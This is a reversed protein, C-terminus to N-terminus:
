QAHFVGFRRWSFAPWYIYDLRGKIDALPIPGFYRSDGFHEGDNAKRQRNDALVFCQGHPVVIEAMDESLENGVIIPYSGKDYEEMVIKAGPSIDLNMPLQTDVKKQNLPHGNIHVVGDRIAVRERFPLRGFAEDLRDFAEKVLLDDSPTREDVTEPTEAFLIEKRKKKENLVRNRATRYIWTGFSARKPDFAALNAFASLNGFFILVWGM